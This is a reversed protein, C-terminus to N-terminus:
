GVRTAMFFSLPRGDSIPRVEDMVVEWKPDMQKEVLEDGSIATACGNTDLAPMTTAAAATPACTTLWRSRVPDWRQKVPGEFLSRLEGAELLFKPKTPRGILECGRMFTHVVQASRARKFDYHTRHSM